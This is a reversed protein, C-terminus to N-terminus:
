IFESEGGLRTHVFLTSSHVCCSAISSFHILFCKEFSESLLYVCEGLSAIFNVVAINIVKNKINLVCGEGKWREGKKKLM